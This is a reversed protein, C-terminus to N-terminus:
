LIIHYSIPFAGASSVQPRLSDEGGKKLALPIQLIFVSHNYERELRTLSLNTPTVRERERERELLILTVALNEPSFTTNFTARETPIKTKIGM